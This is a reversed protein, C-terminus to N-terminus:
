FGLDKWAKGPFCNRWRRRFTGLKLHKGERRPMEVWVEMETPPRHWREHLRKWIDIFVPRFVAKPWVKEGAPRGGNGIDVQALLTRCRRKLLVHDTDPCPSVEVVSLRDGSAPTWRVQAYASRGKIEVARHWAQLALGYHALFGPRTWPIVTNRNLEGPDGLVPGVWQLVAEDELQPLVDGDVDEVFRGNIMGRFRVAAHDAVTQLGEPLKAVLVEGWNGATDIGMEVAVSRPDPLLLDTV